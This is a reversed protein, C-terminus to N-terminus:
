QMKAIEELLVWREKPKMSPIWINCGNDFLDVIRYKSPWSQHYLKSDGLSQILEIKEDLFFRSLICAQYTIIEGVIVTRSYREQEECVTRIAHKSPVFWHPVVKQNHQEITECGEYYWSEVFTNRIINKIFIPVQTKEDIIGYSSLDEQKLIRFSLHLYGDVFHFFSIIGNEDISVIKNDRTLRITM